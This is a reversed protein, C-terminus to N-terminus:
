EAKVLMAYQASIRQQADLLQDASVQAAYRGRSVACYYRFAMQEKGHYERCKAVPLNAPPEANRFNKTPAGLEDRLKDASRADRARYMDSGYDAFKDVGAEDLAKGLEVPDSSFHLAAHANYVGPPNLWSGDRDEKPRILTRRLMNEDDMPRSMLQDPPNPTYRSLPAVVTDLSKRLLTTLAPLDVKELYVKAQDYIWTYVVIRGVARWSAISQVSPDWHAHADPHGPVPVPQNKPNAAFDSRELAAAADTAKQEDPFLLATDALEMGQNYPDNRAYTSFGGILDPAAQRFQGPDDPGGSKVHSDEPTIFSQASLPAHHVFGPDVDSPLPVANGLRQTEMLRAAEMNKPLGMDHPEPSYPGFDLANIDITPADAPEGDDSGCGATSLTAVLLAAALLGTTRRM